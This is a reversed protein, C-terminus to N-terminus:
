QQAPVQASTAQPPAAARFPPILGHGFATRGDSALLDSIGQAYLQGWVELRPDDLLYPASQLCAGYLYLDPHKTLLWNTTNSVTLAPIKAYYALLCTISGSPAPATEVTNAMISFMQPTGTSSLNTQRQARVEEPRVYRMPGGTGAPLEFSVVGEFDTPLAASTTSVVLTTSTIMDAVRLRRSLQAEALRIFDPIVQVLDSRMLFDAVSVQLGAYTGDLAM